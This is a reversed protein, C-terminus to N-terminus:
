ALLQSVCDSLDDFVQVSEPLAERNQLTREGNGTRVLLPTAGAQTAAQIDSLSDGVFPIGRLDIGLRDALQLLLGPSPKRCLCGEDPGHPCFLVTEIHGGHQALLYDMKKHISHLTEIGFLGRAIGSQNTAVATHYGARNLRAIAELSGPIPIWEDASKIYDDANENIVGDRDLVVLKM